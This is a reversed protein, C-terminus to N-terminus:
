YEPIIDIIISSIIFLSIMHINKLQIVIRMGKYLRYNSVLKSYLYM